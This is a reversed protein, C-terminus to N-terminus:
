HLHHLHAQLSRLHTGWYDQYSVRFYWLAHNGDTHEWRRLCESVAEAIRALDDVPDDTHTHAAAPLKYHGLEAFQEVILNRWRVHDHLPQVFVQSDGTFDGAFHQLFALQGLWLELLETSAQKDTSELLELFGCLAARIDQQEIKM